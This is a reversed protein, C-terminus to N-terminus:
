KILGADHLAKVWLKGANDSDIKMLVEVAQKFYPEDKYYETFIKESGYLSFDVAGMRSLSYYKVVHEQFIRFKERSLEEKSMGSYENLIDNYNGVFTQIYNGSYGPGSHKFGPPMLDGAVIYFNPHNKLIEFQLYVHNFGSANCKDPQAMEFISSKNLIVLSIWTTWYSMINMYESITTGHIIKYDEGANRLGIVGCSEDQSIINLVKKWVDNRIIDDDGHTIVFKGRAAKYIEFFNRTGGINEINKNYRVSRYTKIFPKVVEGTDDPSDNNSIYIEVRPDNGWVPCLHGLLQQLLESRNYTPIGITLLPSNERVSIRKPSSFINDDLGSAIVQNFDTAYDVCLSSISDRTSIFVDAIPLFELHFHEDLNVVIVNVTPLGMENKLAEARSSIKRIASDDLCGIILCSKEIKKYNRIYQTLVREWVPNDSKIDALTFYIKIGARKASLLKENAPIPINPVDFKEAFNKVDEMLSLRTELVDKNWYWWKIKQLKDIIDATFRYKIIRAPNGAVIAYPPVNDRVVSDDKVIAGNGIVVGGFIKCGRGISVDNGIIVQRHLEDTRSSFNKFRYNAVALSQKGAIVFNTGEGISSYRGILVHVSGDVDDVEIFGEGYSETGLTIAHIKDVDGVFVEAPMTDSNYFHGLNLTPM